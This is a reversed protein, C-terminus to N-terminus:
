YGYYLAQGCLTCYKGNVPQLCDPCAQSCKETKIVKRPIQKNVAEMAKIMGEKQEDNWGAWVLGTEIIRKSDTFNM